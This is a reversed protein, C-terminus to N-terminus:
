WNYVFDNRRPGKEAPSFLKLCNVMRGCPMESIGLRCFIYFLLFFVIVQFVKKRKLLQFLLLSFSFIRTEGASSHFHCSCNWSFDGWPTDRKYDNRSFRQIHLWITLTLCPLRIYPSRFCEFQISCASLSLWHMANTAPSRRPLLPRLTWNNSGFKSGWWFYFVFCIFFFVLLM